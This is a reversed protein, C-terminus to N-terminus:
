YSREKTQRTVLTHPTKLLLIKGDLEIIFWSFQCYGKNNLSDRLYKQGIAKSTNGKRYSGSLKTNPLMHRGSSARLQTKLFVANKHFIQSNRVRIWYLLIM